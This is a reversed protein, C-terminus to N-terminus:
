GLPTDDSVGEYTNHFIDPKVPYTEGKVGTVIYDGVEAVMDGELTHIVERAKCVRAQVVVPKKRYKKNENKSNNPKFGNLNNKVMIAPYDMYCMNMDVQGEIGPVTGNATFQWMNVSRNCKKQYYAYWLDYKNFINSTYNNKIYDNNAYIGAYFGAKELTACFATAMDHLLKKDVQVGNKLAYNVSDYEFDFYLPYAPKHEGIFNILYEAEKIAMEVTYAYSFWYFGYPIYNEECGQVNQVAKKDINNKGYGARIIAFDINGKVKKWDINGQWVSVDIGTCVM